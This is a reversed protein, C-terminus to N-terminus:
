LPAVVPSWQDSGSLGRGGARLLLGLGAEAGPAAVTGAQAHLGGKKRQGESKAWQAVTPAPLRLLLTYNRHLKPLFRRMPIGSGSKKGGKRRSTRLSCSRRPVCVM